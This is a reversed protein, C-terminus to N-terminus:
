EYAKQSNLTVPSGYIGTARGTAALGFVIAATDILLGTTRDKLALPFIEEVTTSPSRLVVLKQKSTMTFVSDIPVVSPPKDAASLLGAGGIGAMALVMAIVVACLARCTPQTM